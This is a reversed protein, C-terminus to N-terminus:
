NILDASEEPIWCTHGDTLKIYLWGSRNELVKFEVGPSLDENFVKDYGESDGKRGSVSQIVVGEIPQMSEIILSGAFLIALFSLIILLTKLYNINRFLLFSAGAFILFVFFALIKFKIGASFDYHFFFVTKIIHNTEKREIKLPVSNRAESLNHRIQRSSPFKSEAKRYYLVAEGTNGALLYSNAANYFVFPNELNGKRMAEDYAFASQLFAEEREHGSLLLGKKYLEEAESLLIHISDDIKESRCSAASLVTFLLIIIKRM